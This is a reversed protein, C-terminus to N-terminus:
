CPGPFGLGLEMWDMMMMELDADDFGPLPTMMMQIEMEGNNASSSSGAGFQDFGGDNNALFQQVSNNALSQQPMPQVQINALFHQPTPQVQNNALLQQPTPQVQNNDLFHPPMPQLQNNDLFQQAMPQVQNNTLFQPPTPQVQINALFQQATPQVQNNAVFQQAMPLVQNHNNALNQPPTLQVQLNNNIPRARAAIARDYSFTDQLVQNKRATVALQTEELAAEYVMLHAEGLDRVDAQLLATVPSAAARKAEMAAVASERRAEETELLARLEGFRRELDAVATGGAGGGGERAAPAAGAPDFRELIAHVSPDGFTFAKGGPSIVVAALEAGCMIALESAKNFLGSRRKSFCVQRAEHNEIPRIEIRQRGISTRGPPM